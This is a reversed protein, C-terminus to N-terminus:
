RSQERGLQEQNEELDVGKLIDTWHMGEILGKSKISYTWIIEMKKKQSWSLEKM